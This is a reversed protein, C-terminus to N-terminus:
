IQTIILPIEFFGVIFTAVIIRHPVAHGWILYDHVHELFLVGKIRVRLKIRSVLIIEFIAIM